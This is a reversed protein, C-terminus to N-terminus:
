EKKKFRIDISAASANIGKSLSNWALTDFPKNDTLETYTSYTQPQPSKCSFLIALFLLGILISLTKIIQNARM